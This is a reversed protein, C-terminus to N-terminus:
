GRVNVEVFLFSVMTIEFLTSLINTIIYALMHDSFAIDIHVRETFVQTGLILLIM